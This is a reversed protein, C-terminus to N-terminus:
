AIQELRMFALIAFVNTTNKILNKHILLMVAILLVDKLYHLIPQGFTDLIVNAIEM